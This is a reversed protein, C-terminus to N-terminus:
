RLDMTELFAVMAPKIVFVLCVWSSGARSSLYFLYWATGPIIEHAEIPGNRNLCKGQEEIFKAEPKLQDASVGLQEVIIDKVKSEINDSM